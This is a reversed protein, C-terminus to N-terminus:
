TGVWCFPSPYDLLFGVAHVLVGSCIICPTYGGANCVYVCLQAAGWVETHGARGHVWKEATRRRPGLQLLHRWSHPLRM